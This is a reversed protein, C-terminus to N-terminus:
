VMRKSIMPVSRLFVKNFGPDPIQLYFTRHSQHSSYGIFLLELVKFAESPYREVAIWSPNPITNRSAM